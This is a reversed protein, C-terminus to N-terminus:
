KQREQQEVWQLLRLTIEGGPEVKESLWDTVSQRHVGLWKALAVKSGRAETARNLRQILKPLVPKVSKSTLSDGGSTLDHNKGSTRPWGPFDRRGNNWDETFQNLIRVFLSLLQEKGGSPLDGFVREFDQEFRRLYKEPANFSAFSGFGENQALTAFKAYDFDTMFRKHLALQIEETYIKSVLESGDTEPAIDCIRGIFPGQNGRGKVLWSISTNFAHCIEDALHVPLPTRGYEISALRDLSINLAAAFDKQSLGSLFRVRRVRKAIASDAETM